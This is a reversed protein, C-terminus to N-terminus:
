APKKLDGKFFDQTAREREVKLCQKERQFDAVHHNQAARGKDIPQLCMGFLYETDGSTNKDM